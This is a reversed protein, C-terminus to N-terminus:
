ASREHGGRGVKLGEPEDTYMFHTVRYPITLPLDVPLPEVEWALGSEPNMALRGFGYVHKGTDFALRIVVRRYLEPTGQLVSVWTWPRIKTTM